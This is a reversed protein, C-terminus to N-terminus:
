NHITGVLSPRERLASLIGAESSELPKTRVDVTAWYFVGRNQEPALALIKMQPYRGLLFGCQAIREGADDLALILIDPRAEEVAEVLESENQLEGIVEIDPQDAIVALVLERMLRPRNAVLVRTRKM